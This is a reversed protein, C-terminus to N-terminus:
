GNSQEQSLSGVEPNPSLLTQGVAKLLPEKGERNLGLTSIVAMQETHEETDLLHKNKIAHFAWIGFTGLVLVSM